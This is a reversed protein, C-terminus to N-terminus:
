EVILRVPLAKEVGKPLVFYVGANLQDVSFTNGFVPLEGIRKGALDIVEVANVQVEGLLKVTSTAPNPALSWSLVEEDLGVSCGPNCFTVTNAISGINYDFGSPGASPDCIDLAGVINAANYSEGSVCINGSGSIDNTFYLDQHVELLGDHDFSATGFITDGSFFSGFCELSANATTSLDGSNYMNGSTSLFGSSFTATGSTGFATAFTYGATQSMTGTNGLSDCEVEGTNLYTGTNLLDGTMLLGNNTFQGETLLSDLELTNGNNLYTGNNGVYLGKMIRITGTSTSQMDANDTVSINEMQFEGAVTVESGAGLVAMSHTGNQIFSGSANVTISGGGNVMWDVDMSVNHNIIVHDDTSPFCLCDWTFPNSANGNQASTITQQGTSAFPLLAFICYYLKKM